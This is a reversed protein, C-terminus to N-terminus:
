SRTPRHTPTAGLIGFYPLRLMVRACIERVRIKAVEGGQGPAALPGHVRAFFVRPLNSKGLNELPPSTHICRTLRIRFWLYQTNRWCLILARPTFCCLFARQAASGPMEVSCQMWSLEAKRIVRHNSNQECIELM